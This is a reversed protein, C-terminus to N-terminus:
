LLVAMVLWWLYSLDNKFFHLDFLGHVLIVVLMALVSLHFRSVARKKFFALLVLWTMAILGLIGTNLWFALELNHPHPMNWEYPLYGLAREAALQYQVQFQGLGVGLIPHEKVLETAVTYIEVRVSSSTRNEFDLFQQFKLTGMQTVFLIALLVVALITGGAKKKFAIKSHALLFFALGAFLAIFAAYSQTGAFAVVMMGSMLIWFLSKRFNLLAYLVIPGLYLALYNASEFPGSARGDPTIYDGSAMQYLAWLSLGFGSMVLMMFVGQWWREDRKGLHMMFFFVLPMVIWGKWVGQATRASAELDGDFRVTIEPVIMMSITGALLFLLIPWLPSRWKEDWQEKLWRWTSKRRVFMVLGWFAVLGVVVELLTTPINLIELRVLYLPFLLPLFSLWFRYRNM